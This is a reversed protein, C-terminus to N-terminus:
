NKLMYFGILHTQIENTYKIKFFYRKQSTVTKLSAFFIAINIATNLLSKTHAQIIAPALIIHKKKSFM